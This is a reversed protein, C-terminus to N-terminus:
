AELGLTDKMCGSSMDRRHRPATCASTCRRASSICPCDVSCTKKCDCKLAELKGVLREFEAIFKDSPMNHAFREPDNLVVEKLQGVVAYLQHPYAENTAAQNNALWFLNTLVPLINKTDWVMGGEQVCTEATLVAHIFPNGPPMFLVNGPDLFVARGKGKPNWSDGERAFDSWDEDTMSAPPVIMWIKSGFLTRVWTGILCDIHAGSFAGPFGVLDFLLCGQVDFPTSHTQKGVPRLRQVLAELLKYRPFHTLLPKEACAWPAVDLANLAALPGGPKRLHDQLQAGTMDMRQGITSSRLSLSRTGLCDAFYEGCTDATFLDADKFHEQIILPKTFTSGRNVYQAFSAQDLCWFDAEDKGCSSSGLEPPEYYVSGLRIPRIWGALSDFDVRNPLSQDILVNVASHIREYLLNRTPGDTFQPPIIGEACPKHCCPCDHFQRETEVARMATDGDKTGSAAQHQLELVISNSNTNPLVSAPCAVPNTSQTNDTTPRPDCDNLGSEGPITRQPVDNQSSDARLIRSQAEALPRGTSSALGVAIAAEEPGLWSGSSSAQDGGMMTGSPVKDRQDPLTRKTEGYGKGSTACGKMKHDRLLKPKKTQVNEQVGNTLSAGHKKHERGIAGDRARKSYSSEHERPVILGLADLGLWRHFQVAHKADTLVDELRATEVTMQAWRKCVLQQEVPPLRSGARGTGKADEVAAAVDQKTMPCSPDKLTTSGPYEGIWQGERGCSRSFKVHRRLMAANIWHVAVSWEPCVRALDCLQSLTPRGVEQWRYRVVTELKWAKTIRLLARHRKADRVSVRSSDKAIIVLDDWFSHDGHNKSKYELLLEAAFAAYHAQRLVHSGAHLLIVRRADASTADALRKRLREVWQLAQLEQDVQSMLNIQIRLRLIAQFFEVQCCCRVSELQGRAATARANAPVLL